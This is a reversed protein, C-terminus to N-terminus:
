FQTLLQSKPLHNYDLNTYLSVLCGGMLVANFPYTCKTMEHGYKNLKWLFKVRKWIRVWITAIQFFITKSFLCYLTIIEYCKTHEWM